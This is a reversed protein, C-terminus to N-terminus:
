PSVGVVTIGWPAVPRQWPSWQWGTLPLTGAVACVRRPKACALRVCLWQLVLVNLWWVWSHGLFTM